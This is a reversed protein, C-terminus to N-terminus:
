LNQVRNFLNLFSFLDGIHDGRMQCDFDRFLLFQQFLQIDMLPQLTNETQHLTLNAGQLHFLSHAVPDLPLHFLRLAFVIEIFLHLGDLLFKTVALIAAILQILQFRRKGLQFHWLCRTFFGVGLQFLEAVHTRHTGLCGNDAIIQVPHQSNRPFLCTAQFFVDLQCAFNKILIM